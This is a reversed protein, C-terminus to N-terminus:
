RHKTPQKTAEKDTQKTTQCAFALLLARSHLLAGSTHKHKHKHKHQPAEFSGLTEFVSSHQKCIADYKAADGETLAQLLKM